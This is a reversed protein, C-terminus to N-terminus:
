GVAQGVRREESRAFVPQPAELTVLQATGGKASSLTQGTAVGELKGLAVTDGAEASGLKAQDRGLLRYIGSVKASDTPSLWLESNDAVTGSLIRSVSLKGGHATHITKMVQVIAANGDPVGLRKRTTEVDPADHRIAKLLRLVGNGKEATGILVPTVSGDRLDASLDDFVEDRPPEKDELLQEMLLDDHDALTELM